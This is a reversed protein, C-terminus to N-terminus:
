AYAHNTGKKVFLFNLKNTKHIIYNVFFDPLM